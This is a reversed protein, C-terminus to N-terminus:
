VHSYSCNWINKGFIGEDLLAQELERLRKDDEEETEEGDDALPTDDTDEGVNALVSLDTKM